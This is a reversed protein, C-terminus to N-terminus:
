RRIRGLFRAAVLVLGHAEDISRAAVYHETVLQVMCGGNMVSVRSSLGRAQHSDFFSQMARHCVCYSNGLGDVKFWPSNRRCRVGRQSAHKFIAKSFDLVALERLIEGALRHLSITERVQRFFPAHHFHCQLAAQQKAGARPLAAKGSGSSGTSM